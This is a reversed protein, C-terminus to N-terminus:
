GTPISAPSRARGARDQRPRHPRRNRHDHRPEPLRAVATMSRALNAIFGAEDELCRLDLILAQDEIRGIVPIPLRACSAATLRCRGGAGARETPRIALGASPVTELPLAGSGIQSACAIARRSRTALNRRRGRRSAARSRTSIEKPRALLRITPLRQALRDPRSLAEADSRHAALRIKDVRLARKM